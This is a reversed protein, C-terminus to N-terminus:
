FKNGPKGGISFRKKMPIVFLFHVFVSHNFFLDPESFTTDLYLCGQPSVRHETKM